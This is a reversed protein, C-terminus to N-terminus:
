LINKDVYIRDKRSAAIGEDKLIQTLITDFTDNSKTAEEGFVREFAIAIDEVLKRQPLNKERGKRQFATTRGLIEIIGNLDIELRSLTHPLTGLCQFFEAAEQEDIYYIGRSLLLKHQPALEHILSNYEETANRLQLFCDLSEKPDYTVADKMSSRYTDINDLVLSIFQRQEDTTYATRDVIGEWQKRVQSQDIPYRERSKRQLIEVM